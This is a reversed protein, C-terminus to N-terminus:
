RRAVGPEIGPEREVLGIVDGSRRRPRDLGGAGAASAHNSQPRRPCARQLVGRAFGANDAGARPEGGLADSGSCGQPDDIDDNRSNVLRTLAVVLQEAGERRIGHQVRHAESELLAAIAGV